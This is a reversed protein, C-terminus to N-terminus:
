IYLPIWKMNTVAYLSKTRKHSFVIKIVYNESSNACAHLRELSKCINYELMFATVNKLSMQHTKLLTVGKQIKVCPIFKPLLRLLVFLNILMPRTTYLWIQHKFKLCTHIVLFKHSVEKTLIIVVGLFFQIDINLWSINAWLDFICIKNPVNEKLSTLWKHHGLQWCEINPSVTLWM